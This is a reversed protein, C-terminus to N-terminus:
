WATTNIITATMMMNIKKFLPRIYTKKPAIAVFTMACQAKNGIDVQRALRIAGDIQSTISRNKKCKHHSDSDTALPVASPVIVACQNKKRPPAPHREATGHTRAL